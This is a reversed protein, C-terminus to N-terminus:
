LVPGGLVLLLKKWMDAIAEDKTTGVGIAWQGRRAVWFGDNEVTEIDGELISETRPMRAEVEEPNDKIWQWARAVYDDAM